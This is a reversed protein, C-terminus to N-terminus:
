DDEVGGLDRKTEEASRSAAVASFRPVDSYDELEEIYQELAMRLYDERTESGDKVPTDLRDELEKPLELTIAM